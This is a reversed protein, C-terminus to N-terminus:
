VPKLLPGQHVKYPKVFGLSFNHVQNLTVRVVLVLHLIFSNLVAWGFFVQPYQHIPLHIHVLIHWEIWFALCIRPQMLLLM